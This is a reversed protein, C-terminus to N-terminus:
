KVVVARLFGKAPTGGPALVFSRYAYGAPLVNNMATTPEAAVQGVQVNSFNLDNSGEIRYTIGGTTSTGIMSNGDAVFTESTDTLVAVTLVLETGNPSLDRMKFQSFVKGNDSGSLPDGGFAFESLNNSGDGDPDGTPTADAGEQKLTINTRAWSDFGGASDSVLAIQTGSNYAYNISYGTPPTVSHFESTGTLTSYAALVYVDDDLAGGDVVLTVDANSIDLVTAHIKGASGAGAASLHLAVPMGAPIAFSTIATTDFTAGAALEVGSTSLTADAGLALTGNSVTTAGTYSNTGTLVLTGLGTKTLATTGAEPNGITSGISLTVDADVSVNSGSTLSLVPSTSGNGISATRAGTGGAPYAASIGNVKLNLGNELLLGTNNASGATGATLNLVGLAHYSSPTGTEGIDLTSTVGASAAISMNPLNLLSAAYAGPDNYLTALEAVSLAKDFLMVNDMSGGLYLGSENLGLAFTSGWSLTSADRIAAPTADNSAPNFYVRRGNELDSPDRVFAIMVWSQQTTSDPAPIGDIRDSGFDMLYANGDDWTYHGNSGTGLGKLIGSTNQQNVQGASKKVWLIATQGTGNALATQLNSWTTDTMELYQGMTDDLVIGTGFKGSSDVTPAGNVTTFNYGNGSSDTGLTDSSNFQYWAVPATSIPVLQGAVPLQFALKGGSLTFMSASSNNALNASAATFSTGGTFTATTGGSLKLTSTIALPNTADFTGAGASVDVTAVKAGAGVVVTGTSDKPLALTGNAQTSNFNLTGANVNATTITTDAGITSTGAGTNHHFTGITGGTATIGGGSVTMVTANGSFGPTGGTVNVQAVAQTGALIGTGSLNATGATGANVTLTGASVNATTVTGANVTLTGASVNATTVTGDAHGLTVAATAGSVNLTPVILAGVTANLTGNGAVTVTTAVTLNGSGLTLVPSSNNSGGIRLSNVSVDTGSGTINIGATGPDISVDNIAGPTENSGTEGTLTFTLKKNTLDANVSGSYGNIVVWSAATGWTDSLSSGIWNATIGSISPALTWNGQAGDPLSGSDGTWQLFTYPTDLSPTGSVFLTHAGLSDTYNNNVQALSSGPNDIKVNAGTNLALAGSLILTGGNDGPALANGNTITIAPTITGTGGLAGGTTSFSPALTLATTSNDYRLEGAGISIGSSSNIAGDPGIVLKGASVTTAGSYTNSGTLTLTGAGSKTLGGGTSGSDELLAQAVTISNTGTDFTVGGSKIMAASLGQLWITSSAGAKLTVGDLNLNSTGGGGAIASGTTTITLTGGNFNLTGTASGTATAARNGILIATGNDTSTISSAADLNGITLTGAASGTGSVDYISGLDGIQVVNGAGSIDLHNSASTSLTLNGVVVGSGGQVHGILLSSLKLNAVGTGAGSLDMDSPTSENAGNWGGIMGITMTTRGDSIGDLNLTAGSGLTFVGWGGTTGNPLNYGVYMIPSHITTTSNDATTVTGYGNPFGWSGASVGFQSAATITNNAGLKMIGTGGVTGGVQVQDVNVTVNAAGSADLTGAGNTNSGSGWGIHLNDSSGNGVSLTKGTGVVVTGASDATNYGIELSGVTTNGNLNLTGAGFKYLTLAGDGTKAISGNMTITGAGVVYFNEPNAVQGFTIDGNFTLTKASDNAVTQYDPMDSAGFQVACNFIQDNVVASDLYINHGAPLQGNVILTQSNVAGAGITYAACSATTFDIENITVGGALDLTIYGNGADNFTATDGADPYPSASWNSSNTWAGDVTGNFAGSAAQSTGPLALLSAFLSLCFSRPKM